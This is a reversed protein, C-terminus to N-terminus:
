HAVLRRHEGADALEAPTVLAAIRDPHATFRISTHHGAFIATMGFACWFLLVALHSGGGNGHFYATSRVLSAGAGPPL